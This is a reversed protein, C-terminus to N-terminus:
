NGHKNTNQSNSKEDFQATRWRAWRRRQAKAIRARGEPTKPGTSLGGHLRCRKAFPTAPRMRCPRGKRTKAGCIAKRWARVVFRAVARDLSMDPDSPVDQAYQASFGEPASLVGLRRRTVTRSFEGGLAKALREVAWGRPDLAPKGEWYRVTKPTVGALLALARKCLGATERAHRLDDGTM